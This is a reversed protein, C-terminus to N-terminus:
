QSKRTELLESLINELKDACAEVSFRDNKPQPGAKLAKGIAKHMQLANTFWYASPHTEVYGAEPWAVFPMITDWRTTYSAANTATSDPM